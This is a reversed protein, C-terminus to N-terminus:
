LFGEHLLSPGACGISLSNVKFFFYLDCQCQRLSGAWKSHPSVLHAGILLADKSKVLWRVSAIALWLRLCSFCSKGQAREELSVTVELWQKRTAFPVAGGVLLSGSLFMRATREGGPDKCNESHFTPWDLLCKGM